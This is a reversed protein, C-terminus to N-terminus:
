ENDIAMGYIKPTGWSDQIYLTVTGAYERNVYYIQQSVDFEVTCVYAGPTIETVKQVELVNYVSSTVPTVFSFSNESNQIRKYLESGQAVYQLANNMNAKTNNYGQSTYQFYAQIFTMALNEADTNEALPYEGDYIYTHGDQSGALQLKRDGYIVTVDEPPLYLGTIQYQELVPPAGIEEFLMAYPSVTDETKYPACDKGRLTVSSGAPVTVVCSYLLEEPYEATFVASAEEWVAPLIVGAYEATVEPQAFLGGVTYKRASPLGSCDAEMASYGYPIGTEATFSEELLVGNIRVTSGDPVLVTYTKTDTEPYLFYLTCDNEAEAQLCVTGNRTCEVAPVGLVGPIEYRTCYVDTQKEFASVFPYPAERDRILEETLGIGNVTVVSGTPVYVSYTKTKVPLNEPLIEAKEVHWTCLGYKEPPNQGLTVHALLLGDCYLGYVPSQQNGLNLIRSCTYEGEPLAEIYAAIASGISDYATPAEKVAEELMGKMRKETMSAAYRDAANVPQSAEYARMFDAFFVLGIAILLIAAGTVIAYIRWFRSQKCTKM